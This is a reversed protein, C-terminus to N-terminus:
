YQVLSVKPEPVQTGLSEIAKPNVMLGTSDDPELIVAPYGDVVGWGVCGGLARLGWLLRSERSVDRWPNRWSEAPVM